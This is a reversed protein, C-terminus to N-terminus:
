YSNAETKVLKKDTNGDNPSGNTWQMEKANLKVINYQESYYEGDYITLLKHDNSVIYTRNLTTDHNSLANYIYIQCTKDTHFTYRLAGDMVFLPDDNYVGWTGILHDINIDKEKKCSIFAFCITVALIFAFSRKRM